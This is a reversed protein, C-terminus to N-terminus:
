RSSVHGESHSETSHLGGAPEQSSEPEELALSFALTVGASSITGAGASALFTRSDEQWLGMGIPSPVSGVWLCSRWLFSSLHGSLPPPWSSPVPYEKKSNSWCGWCWGQHM